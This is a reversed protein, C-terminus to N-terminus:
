TKAATRNPSANATGPALMTAPTTPPNVPASSPRTNGTSVFRHALARVAIGLEVARDLSEAVGLAESLGLRAHGAHSGPQLADEALCQVGPTPEAVRVLGLNALRGGWLVLALAHGSQAGEQGLLSADPHEHADRNPPFQV